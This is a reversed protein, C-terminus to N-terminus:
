KLSNGTLRWDAVFLKWEDPRAEKESHLHKLTELLGRDRISAGIDIELHRGWGLWVRLPFGGFDVPVGDPFPIGGLAQSVGM